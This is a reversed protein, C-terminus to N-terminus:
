FVFDTVATIVHFKSGYLNVGAPVNVLFGNSDNSLKVQDYQIKLDANNMFDWRLGLSVASQSRNALRVSNSSPAPFGPLFSGPSNQSYTLYPTLKNVRYGGSIYMADIKYNSKRQIWESIVFWDGPDYSAGISLDSNKVEEGIVGTILNESASKREQYGVHITTSGYEVMDFIGWMDRSTSKSTKREITSRGFVAKISNRADGIELRYMADIGDSSTIALQHYLEVPAHVWPYSYGVDRNKSDLFTPLETRGVRVYIDPTFAYKVNAWEVEPLYTNEVHYESVVQLVASVKPTLNADLHAAIRTDNATSWTDSLGPGKPISSDLVYDGLSQSSHSIGLSGFGSFTFMPQDPEVAEADAIVAALLVLVIVKFQKTM